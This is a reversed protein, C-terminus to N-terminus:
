AADDGQEDAMSQWDRSSLVHTYWSVSQDILWSYGTLLAPPILSECYDNFDEISGYPHSHMWEKIDKKFANVDM